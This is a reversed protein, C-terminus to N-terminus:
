EEMKKLINKFVNVDTHSVWISLLGFGSEETENVLANLLTRVAMEEGVDLMIM